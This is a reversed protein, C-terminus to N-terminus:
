IFVSETSSKAIGRTEAKIKRELAPLLSKFRTLITTIQLAPSTEAHRILDPAPDDLKQRAKPPKSVSQTTIRVFTIIQHLLTAGASECTEIL